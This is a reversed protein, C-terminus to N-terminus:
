AMKPGRWLELASVYGEKESGQRSGTVLWGGGPHIALEVVGKREPYLTRRVQRSIVDYLSVTEGNTVALLSTGPLWDMDTVVSERWTALGSAQAANELTLPSFVAPLLEGEGALVLSTPTLTPTPTFTPTPTPIVTPTETPAPTFMVAPTASPAAGPKPSSTARVCGTLFFVVWLLYFLRKSRERKEVM